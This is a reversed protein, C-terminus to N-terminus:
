DGKADCRYRSHRPIGAQTLEHADWRIRTGVWDAREREADSFGTGIKFLVGTEDDCCLLAGMRGSHKGEGPQIGYVTALGDISGKVKLLTSSRKYVYLSGPKRLCVGEGGMKQVDRFCYWVDDANEVRVQPLAHGFYYDAMYKKLSHQRTEFRFEHDPADFAIYQIPRWLDGGDKKRVVSVTQQFMGRGLFLEGDIARDTPLGVKFWSPAHFIKGTRSLFNEGDWFARVGDMKESCYWGDINDKDPRWKKALLVGEFKIM